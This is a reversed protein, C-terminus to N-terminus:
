FKDLPKPLDICLGKELDSIDVNKDFVTKGDVNISLDIDPDEDSGSVTFNVCLSQDGVVPINVDVCAGCENGKFCGLKFDKVPSGGVEVELDVCASYNGDKLTWDEFKVCAGFKDLPKPLDICLGKELDGIDVNKDFVTKGDVNISLDIDPDEDSGSVTFNVCLSQDGVVPINVDVCAGCGM